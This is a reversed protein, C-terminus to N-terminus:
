ARAYANASDLVFASKSVICDETCGVETLLKACQQYHSTYTLM